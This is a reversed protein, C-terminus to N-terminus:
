LGAGAAMAFGISAATVYAPTSGGSGCAGTSLAVANGSTLGLCSVQTGTTLGSFTLTGTATFSSTVTLGSISPSTALVPSGSGTVANGLGTAVGTGLGSVGSSIPLGTANTLTGSSPTGLAGNLVVFAGSSGVNVGLATIVGTGVAACGMTTSTTNEILCPATAGVITTTGPTIATAAGGVSSIVGGSATITTGDVKALGFVSASSLAIAPAGDSRMYTTASGNIAASGATASPNAGSVTAPTAWTGDGRWFTTSSASTGSNLNTVAINGSIGTVVNYNTGDSQITACVPNAASGGALAYTAAGGITSTTPTITATGSNINCVQTFYGATFGTTGAQAIAVAVASSRNEQVLNGCDTSILTDTSATNARNTFAAAVTGTTTIPSGGTSTGCGAAVSTVTGGGGTTASIVGGTATITSGDVEVIGFQSGSAKQVAPAGDSRMFTSASGNVASPGATATPNAGSAGNITNCGFGSNTTWTLANSAGSCSGVALATPSATGSTANGLLTNTAMTALDGVTVLGTATLSSTVTLGSISPSTALVPSGSGTVANGLGTAVGTGLGSVGTSIPLGTANTLTGSTPTGLAGNFVVFAGSSGVPVGLATVVGTGVAPCAMVTGTSNEILCPATAGGITTTGPVITTASGGSSSIVGATTITITAGDPKVCGTATTTAINCGTPQALVPAAGLLLMLLTIIWM